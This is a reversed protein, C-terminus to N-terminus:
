GNRFLANKGDPRELLQRIRGPDKFDGFDLFQHENELWYETSPNQAFEEQTVARVREGTRGDVVYIRAADNNILTGDMDYFHFERSPATSVPASLIEMLEKWLEAVCLDGTYVVVIQDSLGEEDALKRITEVNLREDEYLYVKYKASLPLDVGNVRRWGKAFDSLIHFKDEATSKDGEEKLRQNLTSDNIFYINRKPFEVGLFEEIVALLEHNGERSGRATLIGIQAGKAAATLVALTAPLYQQMFPLFARGAEDVKPDSAILAEFQQCREECSFDNYFHAAQCFEVGRSPRGSRSSLHALMLAQELGTLVSFRSCFFRAKSEFQDRVAPDSHPVADHM